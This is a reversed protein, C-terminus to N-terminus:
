EWCAISDVPKIPLIRFASKIDTKALYAVTGVVKIYKIADGIAAYCVRSHELPIGDNM